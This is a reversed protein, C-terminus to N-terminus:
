RSRRSHPINSKKKKGRVVYFTASAMAVPNKLGKRYLFGETSCLRNGRFVVKSKCTLVQGVELPKFFNVKLEVTSCFDDPGMTAFVAVGCCADFLGSIVGGHIRGAPSAHDNRLVLTM